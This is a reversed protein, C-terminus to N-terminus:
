QPANEVRWGAARATTVTAMAESIGASCICTLIPVALRSASLRFSRILLFFSSRESVVRLNGEGSSFQRRVISVVDLSQAGDAIPFM